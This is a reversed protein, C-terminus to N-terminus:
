FVHSLRWHWTPSPVNQEVIIPVTQNTVKDYSITGVQAGKAIPADLSKITVTPNTSQGQWTVASLSRGAVANVAGVWPVDYTGMVQGQSILPTLKFNAEVSQLLPIAENLTQQLTASTDMIVGFITVTQGNNFTEKASFLYVGGAQDTNGTKIGNIGEKGLLWNVNQISGAVPVTAMPQAVIQAVVPDQLAAQGLLILDHATSVTDPAYGSADTTGFHTDNMGLGVAMANASSSYANISGYSWKALTDAINDASPLLMAELAQYESIKEGLAVKAVSGEEAVYTNYNDVDAQTITLTPGQEGVKLPHAKLVALATMVKAVSATPQAKQTGNTELIGYDLAGVAAEGHAPWALNVDNSKAVSATTKAAFAPTPKAYAIVGYLAVVLVIIVACLGFFHRKM